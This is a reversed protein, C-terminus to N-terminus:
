DNKILRAGFAGFLLTLVYGSTSLKLEIIADLSFPAGNPNSEGLSGIGVYYNGNEPTWTLGTSGNQGVVEYESDGSKCTESDSLIRELPPISDCEEKKEENAIVLFIDDRDWTVTAEASLLLPIPNGRLPEPGFFVTGQTFSPPSMPAERSEPEITIGITGVILLLTAIATIVYGVKRFSRQRIGKDQMENLLDNLAKSSKKDKSNMDVSERLLSAAKRYDSKSNTEQAIKHTAKGALRLTTQHSGDEDMERLISLADESKNQSILKEAKKWVKRQQDAESNADNKKAAMSTGLHTYTLAIPVIINYFTDTFILTNNGM